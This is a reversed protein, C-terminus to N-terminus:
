RRPEAFALPAIARATSNKHGFRGPSPHSASSLASFSVARDLRARRRVRRTRRRAAPRDQRPQGRQGFSTRSCSSGERLRPDLSEPLRWPCPHPAPLVSHSAFKCSRGPASGGSTRSGAERPSRASARGRMAAMSKPFPSARAEPRPKVRAACFLGGSLPRLRPLFRGLLAYSSEEDYALKLSPRM